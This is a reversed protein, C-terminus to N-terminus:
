LVALWWPSIKRRAESLTINVDTMIRETTPMTLPKQGASFADRNSGISASLASYREARVTRRQATISLDYQSHVNTIQFAGGITSFDSQRWKSYACKPGERVSTRRQFISDPRFEFRRGGGLPQPANGLLPARLHSEQLPDESSTARVTKGPWPEVVIAAM